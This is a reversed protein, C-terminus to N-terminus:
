NQSYAIHQFLLIQEDLETSAVSKSEVRQFMNYLAKQSFKKTAIKDYGRSLSM